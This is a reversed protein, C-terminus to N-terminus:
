AVRSDAPRVDSIAALIGQAEQRAHRMSYEEGLAINILARASTQLGHSVSNLSRRHTPNTLWMLHPDQLAWQLDEASEALHRSSEDIAYDAGQFRKKWDHVPASVGIAIHYEFPLSRFAEMDTSRAQIVNYRGTFASAHFGYLQEDALRGIHAINGLALEDSIFRYNEQVNKLRHTGNLLSGPTVPQSCFPRVARFSPDETTAAHALSTKGVRSPGILCVLIKSAFSNRAKESLEISQPIPIDALVRESM